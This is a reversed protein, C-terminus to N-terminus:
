TRLPCFGAIMKLAGLDLSNLHTEHDAIHLTTGDAAPHKPKFTGIPAQFRGHPDLPNKTKNM